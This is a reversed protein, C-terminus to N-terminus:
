EKRNARELLKLQEPEIEKKYKSLCCGICIKKVNKKLMDMCNENYYVDAKCEECKGKKANAPFPSNGCVWIGAKEKKLWKKNLTRTLATAHIEDIM